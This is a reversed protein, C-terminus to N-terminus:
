RKKEERYLEKHIKGLEVYMEAEADRTTRSTAEADQAAALATQGATPAGARIAQGRQYLNYQVSGATPELKLRAENAASNFADMAETFSVFVERGRKLDNGAFSKLSDTWDSFTSEGHQLFDMRAAYLNERQATYADM